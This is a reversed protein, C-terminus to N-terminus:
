MEELPEIGILDLSNKLVQRFCKVLNIRFHEKESGIVPCEHYFENFIQALQYAYNAIITPNLELYAKESLKKFDQLKKILEVEKKDLGEWYKIKMQKKLKRLISSARAYTYLIYPGTDGEFSISEKPNFLMNKRTDVKLLMYKIAALAIILSKKDLEKESIKARKKLEKKALNQMQDLIDDADVVTGERSKMKGEPLEVLGYSLHYLNKSDFGLKKLLSFLVKFHYDQENGVVYISKDLNYKEYKLKALYLDQTIYVSTGDIRLLVKEGLKEKKLDALVAGDKRQQFIGKKLGDLIIERGKKYLESEYYTVDHKIGFRDYTEQFGELAWSNMKKWLEITKKNGQEWHRLMRHAAVELDPNEAVKKNFLVYFEGVFHDPKIKEKKPDKKKLKESFEEYATMSKCIHIGRDNNLNARFVKEGNFELIRSVSEGISMNRLHGLHLPKNTNPSPFEVMTKLKDKLPKKLDSTTGYKNKQKKIESIINLALVKRDLFFNVYPGATQIDQFKKSSSGINQRIILAVENPPIKMKKSVIFCPFAFDGMDSTPPIELTNEIEEKSVEVKEEELAEFILKAIVKKM